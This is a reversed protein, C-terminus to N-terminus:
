NTALLPKQQSSRNRHFGNSDTLYASLHQEYDHTVFYHLLPRLTGPKTRQETVLIKYDVMKDLRPQLATISTNTLASMQARTTNGTRILEILQLAKEPYRCVKGNYPNKCVRKPWPAGPALVTKPRYQKVSLEVNM